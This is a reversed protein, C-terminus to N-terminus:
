AQERFGYMSEKSALLPAQFVDSEMKDAKEGGNLINM